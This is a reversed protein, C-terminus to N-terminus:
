EKEIIKEKLKVFEEDTILGKLYLESVDMLEQAATLKNMEKKVQNVEEQRQREEERKAADTEDIILRFMDYIEQAKERSEKYDINYLAQPISSRGPSYFCMCDFSSIPQNRLLVHVYLESIQKSSSSTGFAAAGILAGADNGTVARGIIAGGLANVFSKKSILTEGDQIVDVAVVDKYDFLLKIAGFVYFVKKRSDDAALYFYSGGKGTIVKSETFDTRERLADEVAKEKERKSKYWISLVGAVIGIGGILSTLLIIKIELPMPADTCSTAILSCFIILLYHLKKLM